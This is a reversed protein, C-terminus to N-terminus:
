YAQGISLHLVLHGLFTNRGYQYNRKTNLGVLVNQGNVLVNTVVPLAELLRPNYGFDVRIPGVPSTYRIGAGPTIAGTGRGFNAITGLDSINQFLSNGVLAGDVFAAGDLHRMLPFRLEVSGEVLSTGGTPRPTFSGNGLAGAKPNTSINPNCDTIPTPLPCVSRLMTDSITLVRPGLQNEGYGRVSNAGGAYFRKRPHLVTDGAASAMPRVIGLRLHFALVQPRLSPHWYASGDFFARNYRYDSLTYRSAHELDIRAIYGRTPTFAQDSRDVFATFLLPSLNQHGRLTNITEVDCVGYNVCFYIDGAEVRTVEYQYTLSAPARDTIQRTFTATAGYGRDIFILPESRRHAFVGFGLQNEPRRLFAPQRFDISAAWNPQLFISSDGFFNDHPTNLPFLHWLPKAALNTLTGTVDLRRAGGLLNHATYSAELQAFNVNDAGGGIRADHLPAEVVQIELQKVSDGTPPLISAARFLGSTYLTRQSQLMEKRVFPQGSRLTLMNLITQTAVRQNGLVNITGVTTPWSPFVRVAVAARRLSDNVSLATDVIADAYGRDWMASQFNFRMTDLTLLNLPKGVKLIALKNRQKVSMLTTDYDIRLASVITPEGEHINFTVTVGKGNPTISTDVTADRYGSRWYYVRIRLVDRRFEDRNLYEHQVFVPSKSFLCFPELLFSRCYSAQTAISKELDHQDVHKVGRVVLKKVEPSPDKSPRPAQAGAASIAVALLAATALSYWRQQRAVARAFRLLRM